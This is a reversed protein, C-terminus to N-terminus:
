GVFMWRSFRDLLHLNCAYGAACLGAVAIMAVRRHRVAAFGGVWASWTPVLYRALASLPQFALPGLVMVLAGIALRADWRWAAVAFAVVLLFALVGVPQAGFDEWGIGVFADKVKAWAAALGFRGLGEDRWEPNSFQAHIFAIPSGAALHYTLLLGGLGGAVIGGAAMSARQRPRRAAELLVPVALLIGVPRAFTGLAAGAAAVLLRDPTRLGWIVVAACFALTAEGYFCVFFFANPVTVLFAALLCRQGLTWGRAVRDVLAVAALVLVINLGSGAVDLPVFPLLAHVAAAMAPFLPFFEARFEPNTGGEGRYGYQAIDLYWQGDWHALVPLGAREPPPVDNQVLAFVVYSFLVTAAVALPAAAAFIARRRGDPPATAIAVPQRPTLARDIRALVGAM